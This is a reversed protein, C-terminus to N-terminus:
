EETPATALVAAGVLAAATSGLLIGIKAESILQADTFALGAIFLSVTFGIGAIAGVGLVHRRSVDPPISAIGTRIGAWSFGTVGLLKGGVLGAVIGMTVPSTFASELVSATLRVGANALAFIPIIAYSTWPHLLHEHREAVSVAEQAQITVRRIAAPGPDETFASAEELADGAGEADAPRAPGLLGLAVGAITAHVGSELTAFWVAFGVVVYLPTWWIRWVRVGVVFGLLSLAVAL